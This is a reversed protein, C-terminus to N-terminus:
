RRGLSAPCRSPPRRIKKVCGKVLGGGYKKRISDILTRGAQQGGGIKHAQDYSAKYLGRLLMVKGLPDVFVWRKGVKGLRYGFFNGPAPTPTGSPMSNPVEASGQFGGGYRGVLTAFDLDAYGGRPSYNIGDLNTSAQVLRPRTCAGGGLAGLGLAGIFARRDM